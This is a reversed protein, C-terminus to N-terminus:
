VTAVMSHPNFHIILISKIGLVLTGQRLKRLLRDRFHIKLQLYFYLYQLYIFSKKTM